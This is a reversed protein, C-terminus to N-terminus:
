LRWRCSKAALDDVAAVGGGVDELDVVPDVAAGDHQLMVAQLEGAPRPDGGRVALQGLDPVGVADDDLAIVAGHDIADHAPHM